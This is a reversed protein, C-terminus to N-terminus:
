KPNNLVVNLLSAVICPFLIEDLSRAMKLVYPRCITLIFEQELKHIRILGNLMILNTFGHLVTLVTFENLLSADKAILDGTPFNLSPARIYDWSLIELNCQSQCFYFSFPGALPIPISLSGYLPVRSCSQDLRGCCLVVSLGRVLDGRWM